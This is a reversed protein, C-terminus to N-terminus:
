RTFIHCRLQAIRVLLFFYRWTTYHTLEHIEGMVKPEDLTDWHAYVQIERKQDPESM